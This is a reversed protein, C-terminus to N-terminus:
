PRHVCCGMNRSSSVSRTRNMSSSASANAKWIPWNITTPRRWCCWPVTWLPTSRAAPRSSRCGWIPSNAAAGCTVTRLVHRGGIPRHLIVEELLFNMMPPWPEREFLRQRDLRASLREEAEGPTIPPYLCGFVARAYEETQLLGPVVQNQYSLLTVSEQEHDVFDQAFAPFREREPVKRVATQLAMKTELLEDLIEALDLKLPRRGQEISAITEEGAGLQRALEAQTLRAANRFVALQAGIVHWSTVRKPRKASHM